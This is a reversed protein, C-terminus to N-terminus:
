KSRFRIQSRSKRELFWQEGMVHLLYDGIVSAGVGTLQRLKEYSLIMCEGARSGIMNEVAVRKLEDLQSQPYKEWGRVAIVSKRGIIIGRPKKRSCPKEGKQIIRLPSRKKLHSLRRWKKIDEEDFRAHILGNVADPHMGYIRGIDSCSPIPLSERMKRRINRLVLRRTKVPYQLFDTSLSSKKKEKGTNSANSAARKRMLCYLAVGRHYREQENDDLRAFAVDVTKSTTVCKKRVSDFSVFELYWYRNGSERKVSALQLRRRFESMVLSIKEELLGNALLEQHIGLLSIERRRTRPRLMVGVM